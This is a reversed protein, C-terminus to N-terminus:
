SMGPRSGNSGKGKTVSSMPQDKMEQAKVTSQPTPRIKGFSSSDQSVENKMM